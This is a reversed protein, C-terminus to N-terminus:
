TVSIYCLSGFYLAGFKQKTLANALTPTPVLAAKGIFNKQLLDKRKKQVQFFSVGM